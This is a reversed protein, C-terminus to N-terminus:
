GINVLGKEKLLQKYHRRSKVYVPDLGMNEDVWPKYDPIINQKPIIREMTKECYTCIFRGPEDCWSVPHIEERENGCQCKYVYVPM